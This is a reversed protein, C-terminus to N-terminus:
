ATKRAPMAFRSPKAAGGAVAAPADSPAAISPKKETVVPSGSTTLADMDAMSKLWALKFERIVECLAGIGGTKGLLIWEEEPIYALDLLAGPRGIAESFLTRKAELAQITKPEPIVKGTQDLASLVEKRTMWKDVINKRQDASLFVVPEAVPPSVTKTSVDKQAALAKDTAENTTEPEEYPNPLIRLKAYTQKDIGKRVAVTETIQAWPNDALDKPMYGAQKGYFDRRKNNSNCSDPAKVWLDKASFSQQVIVTKAGETPPAEVKKGEIVKDPQRIPEVPGIIKKMAAPLSFRSKKDQLVEKVTDTGGEVRMGEVYGLNNTTWGWDFSDKAGTLYSFIQGSSAMLVIGGKGTNYLTMDRAFVPDSLEDTLKKFDQGVLNYIKLVKPRIVELAAHFEAPHSSGTRVHGPYDGVLFAGLLPNDKGDDLLVFPQLDEENFGEQYDGFWMFGPYEGLEKNFEQMEEMTPTGTVATRWLDPQGQISVSLLSGSCSPETDLIAKIYAEPIAKGKHKFVLIGM